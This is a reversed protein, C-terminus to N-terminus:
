KESWISVLQQVDKSLLQIEHVCNDLMSSTKISEVKLERLEKEIAALRDTVQTNAIRKGEGPKSAVRLDNVVRWRSIAGQISKEAYYGFVKPQVLEFTPMTGDKYIENCIESIQQELTKIRTRNSM